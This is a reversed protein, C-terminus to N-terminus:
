IFKFSNDTCFAELDINDLDITTSAAKSQSFYADLRREEEINYVRRWGTAVVKAPAGAFLSFPESSTYDKALMSGSAVIAYAPTRTGKKVISRGGIWNYPGIVIERRHDKIEGTDVNVMYHYDSDMIMSYFGIRAYEGVHLRRRILFSVCETILTEREFIIQGHNEIVSGGGLRLPGRFIIEGRNLIKTHGQGKLNYSGILIMGPTVKGEISIKGM